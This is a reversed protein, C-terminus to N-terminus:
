IPVFRMHIRRKRSQRPLNRRSHLASMVVDSFAEAQGSWLGVASRTSASPV